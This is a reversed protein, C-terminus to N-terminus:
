KSPSYTSMVIADLVDEHRKDVNGIKNLKQWRTVDYLTCMMSRVYEKPKVGQVRAKGFLQKRATTANVINLKDPFTEELVYQLTASFRALKIVITRSGQGGFGSLAAELNIRDISKFLVNSRLHEIVAWSKKRNSDFPKLDIFGADLINKNEDTFAYGATVTSVDLGLSVM